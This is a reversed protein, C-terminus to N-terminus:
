TVMAEFLPRVFTVDVRISKYSKKYKVLDCTSTKSITIGSFFCNIKSYNVFFPRSKKITNNRTKQASKSEKQTFITHFYHLIFFFILIKIALSATTQHRSTSIKFMESFYM